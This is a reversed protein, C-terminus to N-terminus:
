LVGHRRKEGDERRQQLHDVNRVCIQINRETQRRGEGTYLKLLDSNGRQM